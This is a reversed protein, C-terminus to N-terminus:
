LRMMQGNTRLWSPLPEGDLLAPLYRRRELERLINDDADRLGTGQIMKVSMIAGTESLSVEAVPRIRQGPVPPRDGAQVQVTRRLERQGRSDSQPPCYVSREVALTRTEAGSVRIRVAWLRGTTQQRASARFAEALATIQSSPALPELVRVGRVVGNEAYSISLTFTSDLAGARTLHDAVALSDVLASLTPLKKPESALECRREMFGGRGDPVQTTQAQLDTHRALLFGLVACLRAFTNM